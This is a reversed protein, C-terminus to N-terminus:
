RFVGDITLVFSRPPALNGILEVYNYQFLNNISLTATLPIGADALDLACRLDAVTIPVRRDGDQVIGLTVFEEDIREVRSLHRIDVGFTWRGSKSLISAYLLHRPRYKLVDGSTLDWPSVYTYDVDVFLKRELLSIKAGAEIGRVRAKTVNSFQGQGQANFGSEILNAYDTEFLAVDLVAKDSV